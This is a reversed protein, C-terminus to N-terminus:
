SDLRIGARTLANLLYAVQERDSDKEAESLDAYATNYLREYREVHAAPITLSGDGNAECINEHLHKQWRNWRDHADAAVLEFAEASTLRAAAKILRAKRQEAPTLPPKM